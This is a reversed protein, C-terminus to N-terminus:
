VAVVGKLEPVLTKLRREIGMKLTATSSPCGNCSGKLEVFLVDEKYERFLIDGGDQAVAPRVDEILFTKIKKVVDSDLESIAHAGSKPTSGSLVVLPKGGQLFEELVKLIAPTIQAWELKLDQSKTIAVFDKAIMLKQAWPFGLLFDALPSPPSGKTERSYELTEAGLNELGPLPSKNEFHFLCSEPNPSPSTTWKQPGKVQAAMPSPRLHEKNRVARELLSQLPGVLLDWDVWNQKEIQVTNGHLKVSEVWPFGFLKEVLKLGNSESISAFTKPEDSIEVNFEFNYFSSDLHAKPTCLIEM